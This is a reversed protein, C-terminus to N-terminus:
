NVRTVDVFLTLPQGPQLYSSVKLQNWALIDSVRIQFKDAIRHLSDGKRVTYSVKRIIGQSGTTRPVQNSSTWLVLKQGLKIPDAPAMNNWKAIKGPSVKYKQGISWFSDGKQVIHTIKQGSQNQGVTQQKKALRETSSYSYHSKGKSAVPVMLTKGARITNGRLNNIAKLSQTSTHYKAAIVSLTDGPRIKYRKWTVRQEPPIQKLGERFQEENAVPILLQHPGGPDTAWRNFAPNLKYLEDMSIGAIDAAQALDIQSETDVVAFHSQNEIRPLNLSFLDPQLVIEKLALLKPVYAQTERPLKLNWYDTPKGKQKNRRIARSVNGPGSNYAALALLWDNDFRTYLRELYSLSAETSALIDRRGDYWWNQKLGLGKGTRPVIQWIGSARGHSYAFPDFASEVIPLLALEMPMGRKEIEEVIHYIYSGGRKAVREMYSPHKAYWDRQQHIWKNDVHALQYGSRIREWIDPAVLPPFEDWDQETVICDNEDIAITPESTLPEAPPTKTALLQSCGSLLSILLFAILPSTVRHRIVFM